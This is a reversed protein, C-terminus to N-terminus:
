WSTKELGFRLSHLDTFTNSCSDVFTTKPAAIHTTNMLTNLRKSILIQQLNSQSRM